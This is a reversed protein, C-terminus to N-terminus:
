GWFKWLKTEEKFCVCNKMRQLNKEEGRLLSAGFENLPSPHGQVNIEGAEVLWTSLNCVHAVM